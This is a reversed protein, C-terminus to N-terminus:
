VFNSWVYVVMSPRGIILVFPKKEKGTKGSSIHATQNIRATASVNAAGAFWVNQVSTQPDNDQLCSIRTNINAKQKRLRRWQLNSNISSCLIYTLDPTILPAHIANWIIPLSCHHHDGCTYILFPPVTHPHPHRLRLQLDSPAQTRSLRKAM